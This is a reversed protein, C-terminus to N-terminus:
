FCGVFGTNSASMIECDKSCNIPLLLQKHNLKYLNYKETIVIMITLVIMIGYLRLVHVPGVSNVETMGVFSKVTPSSSRLKLYLGSNYHM